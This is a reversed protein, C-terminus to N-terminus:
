RYSAGRKAAGDDDRPHGAVRARLRHVTVTSTVIVNWRPPRSHHDELSASEVTMEWSWRGTTAWAIAHNAREWERDYAGRWAQGSGADSVM